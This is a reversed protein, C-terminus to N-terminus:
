CIFRAFDASIVPYMHLLCIVCEVPARVPVPYKVRDCNRNLVIINEIKKLAIFIINLVIGRRSSTFVKKNTVRQKPITMIRAAAVRLAKQVRKLYYRATKTSCSLVFGKYIIWAAIDRTSQCGDKVAKRVAKLYIASREADKSAKSQRAIGAAEQRTHMSKKKNAPKALWREKRRHAEAKTIICKMETMEQLSIGLISILSANTYNYGIREYTGGNKARQPEVGARVKKWMSIASDTLIEINDDKDGDHDALQEYLDLMAQKSDALNDTLLLMWYLMLFCAYERCNKMTGDRMKVLQWLDDIRAQLLTRESMVPPRKGYKHEIAHKLRHNAPVQEQPFRVETPLYEKVLDHWLDYRRNHVLMATAKQKTRSHTGGALRLVRAADKVKEDVGIHLPKFVDVFYQEVMSWRESAFAPVPKIMWGLQLSKGGSHTVINAPPLKGTAFVENVIRNYMRSANDATLYGNENLYESPADFEVFIMRYHRIGKRSIRFFTNQSFYIDEGNWCPQALVKEADNIRFFWEVWDRKRGNAKILNKRAICIYENESAEAHVARLHEFTTFINPKYQYDSFIIDTNQM